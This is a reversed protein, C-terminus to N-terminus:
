QSYDLIGHLIILKYANPYQSLLSDIKVLSINRATHNAQM